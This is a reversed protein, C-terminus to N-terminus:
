RSILTKPVQQQNFCIRCFRTDPGPKGQRGCKCTHWVEGSEGVRHLELTHLTVACDRETKRRANAQVARVAVYIPVGIPLVMISGASEGQYRAVAVIILLLVALATGFALRHSRSTAEALGESLGILLPLALGVAM